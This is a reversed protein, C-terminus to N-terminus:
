LCNKHGHNSMYQMCCEWTTRIKIKISPKPEDAQLIVVTPQFQPLRFIKFNLFQFKLLWSELHVVNSATHNDPHAQLPQLGSKRHFSFDFLCFQLCWTAYFRTISACLPVDGSFRSFNGKENKRGTIRERRDRQSIRLGRVDQNEKRRLGHM